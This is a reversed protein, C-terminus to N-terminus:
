IYNRGFIKTFDEVSWGYHEMAKEQAQAQLRQRLDKNFHVGYDSMNHWDSRLWVWLGYKESNNRNPGGFVHHCHLGTKAGTIYCEKTDQLISDITAM